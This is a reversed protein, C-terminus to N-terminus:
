MFFFSYTPLRHKTVVAVSSFSNNACAPQTCRKRDAAIAVGPARGGPSLVARALAFACQLMPWREIPLAYVSVSITDLSKTQSVRLFTLQAFNGASQM